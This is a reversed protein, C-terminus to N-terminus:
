LIFRSIFILIEKGSDKILPPGHINWASFRDQFFISSWHYSASEYFLSLDDLSLESTNQSIRFIQYDSKESKCCKQEITCTDGSPVAMTSCCSRVDGISVKDECSGCAMKEISVYGSQVMLSILLVAALTKSM